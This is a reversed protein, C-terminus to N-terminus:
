RFKISLINVISFDNAKPLSASAETCDANCLMESQKAGLKVLCVITAFVVLSLAIIKKSNLM